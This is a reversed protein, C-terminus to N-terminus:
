LCAVLAKCPKGSTSTNPSADRLLVAAIHHQGSDNLVEIFSHFSSESKRMLLDLITENIIVDVEDRKDIVRQADYQSFVGRTMLASVLSSNRAEMTKVIYLRHSNLKASVTESLPHSSGQGTLIYAVHSQGTENLAQILLEFADDSKKLITDILEGAMADFSFQSRIRRDDVLSIIGTNGLMDLLGNEPDVFQCLQYRHQVLMKRHEDSMPVHDSEQRFINAIHYQGSNRLAEVFSDMVSEQMEDPIQLLATLLANTKDDITEQQDIVSLHNRVSVVSLQLSNLLDDSPDMCSLLRMFNYKIMDKFTTDDNEM